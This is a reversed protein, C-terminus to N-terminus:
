GVKPSAKWNRRSGIKPATKAKTMVASCCGGEAIRHAFGSVHTTPQKEKGMCYFQQSHALGEREGSGAGPCPFVESSRHSLEKAKLSVDSVDVKLTKASLAELGKEQCVRM